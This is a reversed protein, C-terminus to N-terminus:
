DNGGGEEREGFRDDHMMMLVGESGGSDMLNADCFRSTSAAGSVPRRLGGSGQETAGVTAGECGGKFGWGWVSVGHARKVEEHPYSLLAAAM